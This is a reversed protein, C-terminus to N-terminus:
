KVTHWFNSILGIYSRLSKHFKRFLAARINPSVPVYYTKIRRDVRQWPSPGLDIIADASFLLLYSHHRMRLMPLILLIWQNLGSHVCRLVSRLVKDM